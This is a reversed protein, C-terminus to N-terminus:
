GTKRVNQNGVLYVRTPNIYFFMCTFTNYYLAIFINEISAAYSLLIIYYYRIYISRGKHSQLAIIYSYSFFTAGRSVDSAINYKYMIIIIISTMYIIGYISLQLLGSHPRKHALRTASLEVGNEAPCERPYIINNNNNYLCNKEEANEDDDDEEEEEAM